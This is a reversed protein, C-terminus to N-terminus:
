NIRKVGGEKKKRRRERGSVCLAVISIRRHGPVRVCSVNSRLVNQTHMCDHRLETGPQSAELWRLQLRSCRPWWPSLGMEWAAEQHPM